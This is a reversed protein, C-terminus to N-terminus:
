DHPCTAVTSTVGLRAAVWPLADKFSKEWVQFTHEGGPVIVSCVDVKAAIAAPVLQRQAALPGGDDSGVEFWGGLWEFRGKALIDLPEHANFAAQSGGFLDGVTSGVANGEGSRPGLLGGFDIFTRYVEPHRLSLMLGCMGGESLGGVAWQQPAKAAFFHRQAFRPVDVTLYQESKGVCETDGLTSGNDDAMVLIPAVGHHAAAYADSTVDALGGQTWNDTSGPTGALLEIVPLHPRPRGFWAPPLYVLADSPDFGSTVPPIAITVVKGRTPVGVQKKVDNLSAEDRASRGFLEELTPIYAFHRNVWGAANGALLVVILFWVGVTAIRGLHHRFGIALVVAALTIGAVTLLFPYDIISVDALM